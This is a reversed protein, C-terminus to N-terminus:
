RKKTFLRNTNQQPKQERMLVCVENFLSCETLSVNTKHSLSKMQNNTQMFHSGRTLIKWEGKLRLNEKKRGMVEGERTRSKWWCFNMNHLYESISINSARTKNAYPLVSLWYFLMVRQGQDPQWPFLGGWEWVCVCVCLFYQVVCM